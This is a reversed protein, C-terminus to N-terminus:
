NQVCVCVCVRFQSLSLIWVFFVVEFWFGFITWARDYRQKEFYM